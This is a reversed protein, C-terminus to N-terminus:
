LLNGAFQMERLTHRLQTVFDQWAEDISIGNSALVAFGEQFWAPVNASYDYVSLQQQLHLPSLEYTLVAPM